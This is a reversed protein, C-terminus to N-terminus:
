FQQVQGTSNMEVPASHELIGEVLKSRPRVKVKDRPSIDSKETFYAVKGLKIKLM